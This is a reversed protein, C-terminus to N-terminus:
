AKVATAAPTAGPRMAQRLALAGLVIALLMLALGTQRQDDQLYNICLRAPADLYLMGASCMM